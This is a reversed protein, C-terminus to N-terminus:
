QRAQYKLVERKITAHLTGVWQPTGPPLAPLERVRLDVPSIIVNINKLGTLAALVFLDEAAKDGVAICGISVANGHIMIDGGLNKRDDRKAQQRDFDNPYNLRLSLHFRSNPNLLEIRYIGEPVQGDGQRLKPGLVGSAALIPYARVFKFAGDAGAAHLELTKELKFGLLVLRAPPYPIRAALFFPALRQRVIEGYESVRDRVSRAGKPKESRADGASAAWPNSVLFAAGLCFVVPNYRFPKM